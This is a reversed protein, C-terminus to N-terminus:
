HFGEKKEHRGHERVHKEARVQHKMAEAVGDRKREDAQQERENGSVPHPEQLKREKREPRDFPKARAHHEDHAADLFAARRQEGPGDHGARRKEGERSREKQAGSRKLTKVSRRFAFPVSAARVGNKKGCLLWCRCLRAM